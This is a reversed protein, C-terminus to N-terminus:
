SLRDAATALETGIVDRRWGTLPRGQRDGRILATLDKRTALIEPAIGLERARNEVVKGLRKIEVPDVVEPRPALGLDVGGAVERNAEALEALVAEGQRRLFGPAVDACQGLAEATAPNRLAIDLLAQDSLIWQRPRDAAMAYTERWRALRRARWQVPAPLRALGPLRQWAEDPNVTYLTPDRLRDSDEMAWAYRGLKELSERLRAYVEPLYLVDAGAYAILEPALPRRSWDARTHTKDVEVDLLAKVLAAYGVQAPHGLLAAGTQTDFLPGLLRGHRVNIVELDQKPAHLIRLGDESCLLDWLPSTDLDALEDVCFVEHGAAVQVICLKGSYTNTRVFETDIAMLGRPDVAACARALQGPQNVLQTEANPVPM